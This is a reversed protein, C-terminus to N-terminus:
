LPSHVLDVPWQGVVALALALTLKEVLYFKLAVGWVNSCGSVKLMRDWGFLM